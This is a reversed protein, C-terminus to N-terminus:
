SRSCRRSRVRLWACLNGAALFGASARRGERRVRGAAAVRRRARAGRGMGAAGAAQRCPRRFEAHRGRWLAPQGRDPVAVRRHSQDRRLSPRLAARPWRRRAAAACLLRDVAGRLVRVPQVRRGDPIRREARGAAVPLVCPFATGAAALRLSAALSALAIVATLALMLAALRDLVLVIGFPAQWNGLLYVGIQDADAFAVLRFSLVALALTAALSLPAQWAPRLREVVLLLAAM